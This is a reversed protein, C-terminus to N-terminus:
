LAGGNSKGPLLARIAPRALALYPKAKAVLDLIADLIKISEAVEKKDWAGEVSDKALIIAGIAGEAVRQLGDAGDLRYFILARRADELAAILLKRLQAEIDANLVEKIVRDISNLLQKVANPDLRLENSARNFQEAVFQLALVNSGAFHPANAGWNVHLPVQHMAAEINSLAGLYLAQDLEPNAAVDRRAEDILRHVGSIGAYVEARHEPNLGLANAWANFVLAGNDAKELSKIIM